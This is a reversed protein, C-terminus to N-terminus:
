KNKVLFLTKSKEDYEKSVIHILLEELSSLGAIACIVACLPVPNELLLIYPVCFMAGGTLKNMYTHISAFCRFKAAATIYAALRIAVVVAVMCWLWLPLVSILRPLVKLIMVAYFMLDAISDLRAGLATTLGARRAIFGDLVDSFGCLSYIIYFLTTDPRIFLMYASGIIRLSTIVNPVNLSGSNRNKSM